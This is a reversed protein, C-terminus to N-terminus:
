KKLIYCQTWLFMEFLSDQFVKELVQEIKLGMTGTFEAIIPIYTGLKYVEIIKYGTAILHKRLSKESVLSIHETPLIPEQYIWKVIDIIGPLFAIKGMIELPSYRQPTTLILIGNPALLKKLGLLTKRLDGIHEIVETCLIIDYKDEPLQTNTIDDILYSINTYQSLSAQANDIYVPEIDSAMVFKSVESLLPLYGGGGPGVELSYNIENKINKYKIIKEHIWDRRSCHLWSRTPNKSTYLTEQLNILQNDM